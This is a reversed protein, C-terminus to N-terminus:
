HRPCLSPLEGPYEDVDATVVHNSVIPKMMEFWFLSIQTLIVGKDPIPEHM